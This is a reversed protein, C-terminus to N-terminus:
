VLSDSVAAAFLMFNVYVDVPLNTIAIKGIKLHVIALAAYNRCALDFLSLGSPILSSFSRDKTM